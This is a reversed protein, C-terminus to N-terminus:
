RRLWRLMEGISARKGYMLIGTRYIKGAFITIVGVSALLVGMSLWVHWIDGAPIGIAIRSMMVIPSTFPIISFLDVWQSDPNNLAIWGVVFSFILPLLVPFVYAQGDTDNDVSAGIAAFMAAYLLYGFIFFFAFYGLMVTYDIDAYVIEAIQNIEFPKFQEAADVNQAVQEPTSWNGPDYRDPFYTDKMSFLIAWTLGIWVIFQVMAALGIGVIKGIMLQIPRVSSVIVEVIRNTKEEIVGRMVQIAFTLIFFFIVLGFVMGAAGANKRLGAEKGEIHGVYLSVKQKIRAYTNPDISNKELKLQELGYELAKSIDAIAYASPREKFQISASNNSAFKPNIYIILDYDSEKFVEDSIDKDSYHFDVWRSDELKDNLLLYEDYVYAKYTKAEGGVEFSLFTFGAILIPGLIAMLLFSRRGVRSMFERGIILMTKSM